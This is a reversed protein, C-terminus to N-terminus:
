STWYRRAALRHKCMCFFLGMFRAPPAPDRNRAAPYPRAM